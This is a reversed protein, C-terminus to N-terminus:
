TSGMGELESHVRRGKWGTYAMQLMLLRNEIFLREDETLDLDDDLASSIDGVSDDLRILMDQKEM